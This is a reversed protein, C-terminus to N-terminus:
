GGSGRCGAIGAAPTVISWGDAGKVKILSREIYVGGDFGHGFTSAVDVHLGNEASFQQTEFVGFRSQGDLGTRVLAILQGGLIIEAKDGTVFRLVPTPREAELTWLIMGCSKEPLAANAIAGLGDAENVSVPAQSDVATPTGGQRAGVLQSNELAACAGLSLIAGTLVTGLFLPKGTKGRMFVRAGKQRVLTRRFHALANLRQVSKAQHELFSFKVMM